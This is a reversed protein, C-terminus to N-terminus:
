GDRRARRRRRAPGQLAERAVLEDLHPPRETPVYAAAGKGSTTIRRAHIEAPGVLLPLRHHVTTRRYLVVQARNFLEDPIIAEHGNRKLLGKRHVYGAYVPNHVVQLVQVQSWRGGDKGRTGGQRLERALEATSAGDTIRAFISRVIEAEEPVVLLHGGELRYGIPPRSFWATDETAFKEDLASAVRESTQDSEFESLAGLFHYVLKGIASTTDIGETVSALEKGADRLVTADQVFAAMRRHLRNLKWVVLVDWAVKGAMMAEYQPRRVSRYASLAEDRYIIGLTWGKAECYARIAREQADLSYGERAQDESSVRVYGVARVGAGDPMM